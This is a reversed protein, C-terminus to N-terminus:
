TISPSPVPLWLPADADPHWTRTNDLFLQWIPRTEPSRSLQAALEQQDLRDRIEMASMYNWVTYVFTFNFAMAISFVYPYNAIYWLTQFAVGFIVFTRILFSNIYDAPTGEYLQRVLFFIIAFWVFLSIIPYRPM